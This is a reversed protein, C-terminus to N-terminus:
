RATYLYPMPDVQVALLEPKDNALHKLFTTYMEEDGVNIGPPAIPYGVMRLRCTKNDTAKRTLKVEKQGLAPSLFLRRYRNRYENKSFRFVKM